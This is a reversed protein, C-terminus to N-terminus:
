DKLFCRYNTRTTSDEAIIFQSEWGKDEASVLSSHAKVNSMPRSIKEVTKKLDSDESMRLSFGHNAKCVGSYTLGQFLEGIQRNMVSTHRKLFYITMDRLAAGWEGLRDASVRFHSCLVDILEASRLEHRERRQAIEAQDLAAEKAKGLAQKIFGRSGLIVGRFSDAFPNRVEQGGAKGFFIRKRKNKRAAVLYFDGEYEIRLPRAL